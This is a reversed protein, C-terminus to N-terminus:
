RERALADLAQGLGRFSVPLVADQGAASKFAIRGMGDYSRWRALTQEALAASAFCGAPACRRWALDLPQPDADSMTVRPVAQFAVNVPVVITMAMADNADPKGFAIEAITASKDKVLVSQLIECSRRAQQPAGAALCRLQWDGFLRPAEAAPAAAPAASAPKGHAVRAAPASSREVAHAAAIQPLLLVLALAIPRIM